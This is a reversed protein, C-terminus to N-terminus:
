YEIVRLVQDLTIVTTEETDTTSRLNDDIDFRREVDITAHTKTRERIAGKIRDGDDLQVLVVDGEALEDEVM